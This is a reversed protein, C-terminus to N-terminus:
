IWHFTQKLRSDGINVNYIHWWITVHVPVKTTISIKM